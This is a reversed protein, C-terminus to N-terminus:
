YDKRPLTEIFNKKGCGSGRLLLFWHYIIVRKVLNMVPLVPPVRVENIPNTVGHRTLLDCLDYYL